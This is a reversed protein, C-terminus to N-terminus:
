HGHPIRRVLRRLHSGALWRQRAVHRRLDTQHPRGTSTTGTRGERSDSSAPEIGSFWNYVPKLTVDATSEAAPEFELSMFGDASPDDTQLDSWDFPWRWCVLLEGGTEVVDEGITWEFIVTTPESVTLHDLETHTGKGHKRLREDKPMKFHHHLEPKAPPATSLILM